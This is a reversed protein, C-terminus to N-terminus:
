ISDGSVVAGKRIIRPDYPASICRAGAEVVVDKDIIMNCLRASSGVHTNQMIICNEVDAGPDIKVGRFVISNSVRGRINCGNGFLSHEVECGRAFKTPPADMTKTYVPFDPRFLEYRIEKDLMDQNLDFYSKVSTVRGVYGDHRVGMVKYKEVAMKLLDTDFDYRGQACTDEVLRMLLKKDILCARLNAYCNDKGTPATLINLVRDGDMELFTTAGSKDGMLREDSSYMLTVDAGSSIHRDMLIDFDQRYVQDTAMLLCYPWRQHEIFDRKSLLADVFGHYLESSMSLDYPPLIMLGGVKKSLNWEKGSGIHDILSKYNRQTIFGVSRVGSNTLNSLLVDIIRYRGAIPMAATSRLEILERLQSGGQRAYIISFANNM